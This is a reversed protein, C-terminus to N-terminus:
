KVRKREMRKALGWRRIVKQPPIKNKIEKKNKIM